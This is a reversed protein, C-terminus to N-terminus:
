RVEIFTEKKLKDSLMVITLWQYFSSYYKKQDAYGDIGSAKNFVIGIDKDYNRKNKVFWSAHYLGNDNGHFAITDYNNTIVLITNYGGAITLGYLAQHAIRKQFEKSMAMKIFYARREASLQCAQKINISDVYKTAVAKNIKFWKCYDSISTDGAARRLLTKIDKPKIEAQYITDRNDTNEENRLYTRYSKWKGNEPRVTYRRYYPSMFHGKTIFEIKAIDKIEMKTQAFSNMSSLMFTMLSFSLFSHNKFPMPMLKLSLYKKLGKSNCHLLM